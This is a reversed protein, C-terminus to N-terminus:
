EATLQEPVPAGKRGRQTKRTEHVKEMLNSAVRALDDDTMEHFDEKTQGKEALQMLRLLLDYIKARTMGGAPSAKWDDYLMEAFATAGGVKAFFSETVHRLDAPSAKGLDRAIEGYVDRKSAM